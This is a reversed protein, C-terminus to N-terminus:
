GAPCRLGGFRSLAIMLRWQADSCADIVKAAADRTVLFMRMKDARVNAALGEFPSAGRVLGRKIAWKFM